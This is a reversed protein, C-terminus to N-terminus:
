EVVIKGDIRLDIVKYKKFNERELLEVSQQIAEDRKESPFKIIQDNILELDWRNIQFYSFSKIKNKPFNNSRLQNFFNIFDSEAKLGFVKPLKKEALNGEPPILNSLTDLIYKEKGRYLIAVPETEYIKIVITNPYKKKVEISKFYDLNLLFKLIDNNSLFIINKNYIHNLRKFITSEKIRYNNTVEIKKIKFFNNEEKNKINFNKPTYTTLFIFTFLLIIIKYTKTM